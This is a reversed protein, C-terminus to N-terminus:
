AEQAHLIITEEVIRWQEEEPTNTDDVELDDAGDLTIIEDPDWTEDDILGLNKMVSQMVGFADDRQYFLYTIHPPMMESTHPETKLIHLYDERELIAYIEKALNATSSLPQQIRYLTQKFMISM